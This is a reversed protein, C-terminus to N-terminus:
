GKLSKFFESKELIEADTYNPLDAKLLAIENKAYIVSEDQILTKKVGDANKNSYSHRFVVYFSGDEKRFVSTDWRHNGQKRFHHYLQEGFRELDAERLNM